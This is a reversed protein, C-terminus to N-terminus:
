CNRACVAYQVATFYTCLVYWIYDITRKVTVARHKATTFFPAACMWGVAVLRVVCRLLLLVLWATGPHYREYLSHLQLGHSQQFTPDPKVQFETLVLGEKDTYLHGNMMVGAAAGPAGASAAAASAPPAASQQKITSSVTGPAPPYTV